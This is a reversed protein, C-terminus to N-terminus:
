RSSFTSRTPYTTGADLFRRRRAVTADLRIRGESRRSPADTTTAKDSAAQEPALDGPWVWLVVDDVAVEAQPWHM